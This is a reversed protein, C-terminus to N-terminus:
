INNNSKWNIYILISWLLNSNVHNGNKHNRWLVQITEFNLFQDEKIYNSNFIDDSFNKLGGGLWEGIPIGFGKKKPSILSLDLYKGLVKRM